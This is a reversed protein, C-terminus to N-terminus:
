KNFPQMLALQPQQPDKGWAIGTEFQWTRKAGILTFLADYFDAARALNNTGLTVYGIM